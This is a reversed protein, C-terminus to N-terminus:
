TEYALFLYGGTSTILAFALRHLATGARGINARNDILNLHVIGFDQDDAAPATRACEPSPRRGQEKWLADVASL